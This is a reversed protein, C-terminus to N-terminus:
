QNMPWHYNTSGVLLKVIPSVCIKIRFKRLDVKVGFIVRKRASITQFLKEFGNFNKLFEM